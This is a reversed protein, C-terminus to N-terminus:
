ARAFIARVVGDNYGLSRFPCTVSQPGAPRALPSYDPPDRNKGWQFSTGRSAFSLLMAIPILVIVLATIGTTEATTTTDDKYFVMAKVM